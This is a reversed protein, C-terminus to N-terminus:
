QKKGNKDGETTNPPCRKALKREGKQFVQTIASNSFLRAVGHTQSHPVCHLMRHFPSPRLGDKCIDRIM